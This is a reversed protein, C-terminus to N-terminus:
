QVLGPITGFTGFPPGGGGNGNFVNCQIVGTICGTGTTSGPCATSNQSTGPGGVYTIQVTAFGIILYPANGGPACPNQMGASSYVPVLADWAGNNAVETQWLNQLATWAPNGLNGNGFHLETVGAQGGPAEWTGNIMGNVEQTLHNNNFSQDYTTWGACTQPNGPISPSFQITSGCGFGSTFYFQSIGFPANMDGPAVAGVPNLEATAVASVNVSTMGIVSALFTSIPGNATGDRRTIVQVARPQVMTPTLTTTVPDWNGIAIDGANVTISVGAAVNAAAATTAATVISAVNGGTLTYGAQSSTPLGQYIVGLARTGALAAADGANQLENRAVLAHGIDIAAAAMALLVVMMISVMVAVAGNQNNLPTMRSKGFPQTKM